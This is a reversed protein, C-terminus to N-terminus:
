AKPIHFPLSKVQIHFPLSIQWKPRYYPGFLSVSANKPQSFTLLVNQNRKVVTCKCCNFRICPELQILYAFSTGNAMQWYFTYLLPVKETFFPIYFPLPNKFTLPPSRRPAKGYLVNKLVSGSNPIGFFSTVRNTQFIARSWYRGYANLVLRYQLHIEQM